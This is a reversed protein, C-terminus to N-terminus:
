AAESVGRFSCNGRHLTQAWKQVARVPITPPREDFAGPRSEIVAKLDKTDHISPSTEGTRMRVFGISNM